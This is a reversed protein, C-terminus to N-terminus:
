GRALSPHRACQTRSPDTRRQRPHPIATVETGQPLIPTWAITSKVQGREGTLVMNTDSLDIPKWLYHGKRTWLDSQIYWDPAKFRNDDYRLKYRYEIISGVQVDPMTFVKAMFKVGQTKEILKEYPKGTFPIITGDSHITRGQIDEVTSVAM